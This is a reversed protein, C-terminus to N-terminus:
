APVEPMDDDNFEPLEKSVTKMADAIRRMGPTQSTNPLWLEERM